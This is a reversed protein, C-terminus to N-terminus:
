ARNGSDPKGTPNNPNAVFVLKTRETVKALLADVDTALNTEPAVVPVAGYSQAYIKYMLFGHESYLVEDGPETYAGILLGILEDSGSGCVIRSTDLGHVEAIAERLTTCGANPYRHLVDFGKLAKLAESSAGLASENSSLKMVPKTGGTSSKGAVYPSIQLVSPHPSPRM